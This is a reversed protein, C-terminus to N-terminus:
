TKEKAEFSVESQTQSAEICSVGCALTMGPGQSTLLRNARIIIIVIIIIITTFIELACDQMSLGLCTCFSPMYDYLIYQVSVVVYCGIM